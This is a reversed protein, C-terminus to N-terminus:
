FHCTDFEPYGDVVMYRSLTLLSQVRSMIRETYLTVLSKGNRDAAAPTQFAELHLATQAAV